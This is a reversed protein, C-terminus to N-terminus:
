RCPESSTGWVLRVMIGSTRELPIRKLRASVIARLVSSQLRRNSLTVSRASQSSTTSATDARSNKQHHPGIGHDLLAPVDRRRSLRRGTPCRAATARGLHRRWLRTRHEQDGGDSEPIGANQRPGTRDHRRTRCVCATWRRQGDGGHDLRGTLLDEIPGPFPLIRDWSSMPRRAGRARLLQDPHGPLPAQPLLVATAAPELRRLAARDSPREAARHVGAPSLHLRAVARLDQEGDPDAQELDRSGHPALPARRARGRDVHDERYLRAHFPVFEKGRTRPKVISM